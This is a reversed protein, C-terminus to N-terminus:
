TLRTHEKVMNKGMRGNGKCVKNCSPLTYTGQGYKGGDKVYGRCVKDDMLPFNHEKVM